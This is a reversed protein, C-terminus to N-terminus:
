TTTTPHPLAPSPAFLWNSYNYDAYYRPVATQTPDPWVERIFEYARPSLVEFTNYGTGKGIAISVTERWRDPKAYVSQGIVMTSNVVAITGTIKVERSLRREAMNILGPLQEYVTEDTISGRELYARVDSQLSTFTM